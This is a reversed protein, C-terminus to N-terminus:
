LLIHVPCVSIDWDELSLVYRVWVGFGRESFNPRIGMELLELFHEQGIVLVVLIQAVDLAHRIEERRNVGDDLIIRNCEPAELFEHLAHLAVKEPVLGAHTGLEQGEILEDVEHVRFEVGM